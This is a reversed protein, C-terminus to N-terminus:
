SNIFVSRAFILLFFQHSESVEEFPRGIAVLGMGANVFSLSKFNVVRKLFNLRSDKKSLMNILMYTMVNNQYIFKIM